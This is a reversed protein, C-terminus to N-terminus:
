STFQGWAIFNLLTVLFFAISFYITVKHLAAEMGRKTRYGGSDGGGGGMFSSMDSGKSQLVVLVIISVSLIIEVVALWPALAGLSM